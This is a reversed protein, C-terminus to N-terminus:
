GAFSISPSVGVRVGVRPPRRLAQQSLRHIPPLLREVLSQAVTETKGAFWGVRVGEGHVDTADVGDLGQSYM